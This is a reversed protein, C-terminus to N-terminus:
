IHVGDFNGITIVAKEFPAEIDEIKEILKMKHKQPTESDPKPLRLQREQATIEPDDKKTVIQKVVFIFSDIYVM